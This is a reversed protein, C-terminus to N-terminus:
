RGSAEFYRSAVGPAHLPLHAILRRSRLVYLRDTVMGEPFGVTRASVVSAEIRNRRVARMIESPIGWGGYIIVLRPLDQGRQRWVKIIESCGSLRDESIIAIVADGDCGIVSASGVPM